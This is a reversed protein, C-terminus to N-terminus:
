AVILWLCVNTVCKNIDGVFLPETELSSSNGFRGSSYTGTRHHYHNHSTAATNLLMRNLLALTKNITQPPSCFCAWRLRRGRSRPQEKQRICNWWICIRSSRQFHITFQLCRLWSRSLLRKQQEAVKQWGVAFERCFPFWEERIYESFLSSSANSHTAPQSIISTFCFSSILLSSCGNLLLHLRMPDRWVIRSVFRHHSQFPFIM